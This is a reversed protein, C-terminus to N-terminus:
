SLRRMPFDIVGLVKERWAWTMNEFQEDIWDQDEAAAPGVDGQGRIWVEFRFRILSSDDLRQAPLEEPVLSIQVKGTHDVWLVHNGDEDDCSAVLGRLQEITPYHALNM